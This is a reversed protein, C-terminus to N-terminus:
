APQWDDLIGARLANIIALSMELSLGQKSLANSLSNSSTLTLENDLLDILRRQVLSGAVLERIKRGMVRVGILTLYDTTSVMENEGFLDNHLEFIEDEILQYYIELLNWIDPIDKGREPRDQWALLKLVVIGPISVVRWQEGAQTAMIPAASLVEAFGAMSIYEEGNGFYVNGTEDAIAGFPMLDVVVNNLKDEGHYHLCFDSNVDQTFEEHEILWMKLTEYEDTNNIFIALDLDRTMSREPMGYMQTLWIDRAVAGVIYFDVGFRVFGRQLAAMAANM